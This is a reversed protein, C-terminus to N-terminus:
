KIGEGDGTFLDTDSNFLFSILILNLFGECQRYIISGVLPHCSAHFYSLAPGFHVSSKGVQGLNASMQCNDPFAASGHWYWSLLLNDGFASAQTM